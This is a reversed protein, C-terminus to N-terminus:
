RMYQLYAERIKWFEETCEGHAIIDCLDRGVNLIIEQVKKQTYAIREEKTMFEPFAAKFDADTSLYNDYLSLITDKEGAVTLVKESEEVVEFSKRIFSLRDAAVENKYIHLSLTTNM